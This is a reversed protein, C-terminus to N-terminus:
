GAGPWWPVALIATQCCISCVKPPINQQKALVAEYDSAGNKSVFLLDQGVPTINNYNSWTGYSVDWVMPEPAVNDM